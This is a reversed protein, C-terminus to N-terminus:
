SNADVLKNHELNNIAEWDVEPDTVIEDQTGLNGIPAVAPRAALLTRVAEAKAEPTAASAVTPDIANFPDYAKAITAQATAIESQATGLTATATDRESIAGDREVVLQQNLELREEVSQLQGENLFVGENTSELAEVSLVNNLHSFQKVMIVTNKIKVERQQNVIRNWIKEFFSDENVNQIELITPNTKRPLQPFGNSTIMAVMQHNEFYNIAVSPVYVEDVFGWAKAEEANLWTQQKMLATIEDLTKGTKKVYMKALQLTVKALYQKTDELKTILAEIEDENMAGWADVWNMAKHILYFSNENMRVTKAGLSILTAASAVFASLEATVNGHEIFQDYISLAEDVSGGLSSIKVTVANKSNGALENRVFQKSYGYSTITGDIIIIKEAM